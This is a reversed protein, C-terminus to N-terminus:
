LPLQLIRVDAPLDALLVRSKTVLELGLARRPVDLLVWESAPGRSAPFRRGDLLDVASLGEVDVPAGRLRVDRARELVLRERRERGPLETDGLEQSVYGRKEVVLRLPREPLFDVRLAAKRDARLQRLERGGEFLRFVTGALRRGEDSWISAHLKRGTDPLDVRLEREDGPALPALHRAFLLDGAPGLVSLALPQGPRLDGLELQGSRDFPRELRRTAGALQVPAAESELLLSLGVSWAGAPLDLDARLRCERELVVELERPEGPPLVRRATGFGPASLEIELPAEGAMWLGTRGEVDTPASTEGIAGGRATAGEVAAGGADVVRLPWARAEGLRLDGLDLEASSAPSALILHLQARGARASAFLELADFAAVPWSLRFTGSGDTTATSRAVEEGGRTCRMMVSASMALAGSPELIRGAPGPAEELFLELGTAPGEIRLEGGGDRSLLAPHPPALRLGRPARLVGSWAPPLGRFAFAGDAATRTRALVGAGLREFLREAVPDPWDKGGFAPADGELVLEVGAPVPRGDIRVRGSLARGEELEWWLEREGPLLPRAQVFGSERAAYLHLGEFEGHFDALGTADAFALHSEGEADVVVLRRGALGGPAAPDALHVRLTPPEAAMDAGPEPAPDLAAAGADIADPLAGRSEQSAVASRELVGRPPSPGGRWDVSLGLWVAGGLLAFLGAVRATSWALGAATPSAGPFAAPVPREARALALLAMRWGRGGDPGRSLCERLLELGRAHRWRVTSAPVGQRRAIEALELGQFHHLLITTRIPEELELVRAALEREVEVQEVLSDTSPLDESRAAIEERRRRRAAARWGMRALNRAIGALWPRPSRGAMPPNALAALWTEQVLDDAAAEDVVLRRALGRLWESHSLLEALTATQSPSSM